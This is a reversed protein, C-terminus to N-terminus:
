SDTAHLPPLKSTDVNGGNDREGVAQLIQKLEARIEAAQWQADADSYKATELTLLAQEIVENAVCARIDSISHINPNIDRAVAILSQSASNADADKLAKKLIQQQESASISLQAASRHPDAAETSQARASRNTRWLLTVLWLIAMLATALQWYLLQSDDLSSTEESVEGAPGEISTPEAPLNKLEPTQTVVDSTSDSTTKGAVSIVKSPLTLTQPQDTAVNWWDVTIAPITIEGPKTAIVALTQTRKGILKGDVVQASSKAKEPYFKVGDIEPPLIDPLQTATLEEAMLTYTWTVPTGVELGNTDPKWSQKVTLNKAPLWWSSNSSPIPKVEITADDSSLSVSRSRGRLSGLTGYSQRGTSIEASYTVGPITYVGSQQPFIAFKRELVRYRVSDIVTEFQIDEGIREILAGELQPDNLSAYQARVSRYLRITYTLQQQVYVSDDSIESVIKIADAQGNVNASSVAALVKMTVPQTMKGDVEFSPIVFLGESLAKITINWGAQVTAQGNITNKRYFNSSRLIQLDGPMGTIEPQNVPATDMNITLEFTENVRVTTRDVTVFAAEVIVSCLLVALVLLIRIVSNIVM